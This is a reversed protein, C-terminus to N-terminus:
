PTVSHPHYIKSVENSERKSKASEKKAYQGYDVEYDEYSEEYSKEPFREYKDHLNDQSSKYTDLIEEFYFCTRQFYLRAQYYLIDLTTIFLRFWINILKM